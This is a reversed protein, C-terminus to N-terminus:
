CKSRFTGNVNLDKVPIVLIKDVVNVRETVIDVDVVGDVLGTGLEVIKEEEVYTINAQIHIV